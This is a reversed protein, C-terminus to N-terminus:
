ATVLHEHDDGLVASGTVAPMVTALGHRVADGTLDVGVIKHSAIRDTGRVRIEAFTAVALMRRGEDDTERWLRGISRLYAIAEDASVSLDPVQATLLQDREKLLADREALIEEDTRTRDLTVLEQGLKKLRMEVRAVGLRDVATPRSVLAARIRRITAVSPSAADLLAAIQEEIVRAPVDRVPWGACPEGERHRYIRVRDGNRRTRTDGKISLGCEDCVMPGGGTLPHISNTRARNGVRNRTVRHAEAALRIDLPIPAPFNAEIRPRVFGAFLPSQLVKRVQWITLDLEAGISGDTWGQASLEWVRRATPMTDPNPVVLKTTPDRMFGYPVLGGGQDHRTELKAAYGDRVKEQLDERYKQADNALERMQQWDKPNGSILRRDAMVLSVGNPHLVDEVIELTRRLNRQFRDYYGVILLRFEGGRAHDLMEQMTPTKWVSEGSHAVVYDLRGPAVAFRDRFTACNARQANGDHRDFQAKTSERIWDRGEFDHLDDLSAPPAM